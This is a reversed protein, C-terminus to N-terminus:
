VFKVPLTWEYIESGGDKTAITAWAAVTAGGPQLPFAGVPRTTASWDGTATYQGSWGIAMAIDPNGNATGTVQSVVVTFVVAIADDDPEWPGIPGTIVMHGNAVPQLHQIPYIKPSMIPGKPVQM